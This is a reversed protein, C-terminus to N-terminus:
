AMLEKSVRQWKVSFFNLQKNEGNQRHHAMEQVGEHM